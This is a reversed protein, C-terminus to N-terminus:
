VDDLFVVGLLGSLIVNGRKRGTDVYQHAKQIQHFPFVKDIVPHLQREELLKVLKQLDRKIRRHDRLGTAAFAIKPGGQIKSLFIKWFVEASLVPTLFIGKPTLRKRFRDIDLKGVTDFIIDYKQKLDKFAETSYDLVHDAGLSQVLAHNKSSCVGTVEAGFHKALQVAATGISGSAGNILIKQGKQIQVEDTFFALATLGGDLIGTAEEPKLHEPRKIIIDKEALCIYEAYAGAQVGTEAIIKDGVQFDKVKSGVEVIIGALDTGQIRTKPRNLGIFLRGLLPKGERMFTSAATVSTAQIRILVEHDGPRPTPVTDIQFAEPGGYSDLVIAKM